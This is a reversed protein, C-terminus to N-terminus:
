RLCRLPAPPHPSTDSTPTITITFRITITINIIFSPCHHPYHYHHLVAINTNM